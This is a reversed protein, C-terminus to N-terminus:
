VHARGIKAQVTSSAEVTGNAKLSLSGNNNSFLLTYLSTGGILHSINNNTLIVRYPYTSDSKQFWLGNVLNFNHIELSEKCLVANNFTKVGSAAQSTSLDVFSTNSIDTSPITSSATFASTGNGKVYGTLTTAGTGGNAVVVTGTVNSATGTTSQNLTPIDAPVLARFTPAAPAGTTPGALVTNAAKTGYPNQTDGYASNLSISRFLM